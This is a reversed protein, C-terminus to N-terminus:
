LQTLSDVDSLDFVKVTGDKLHLNLYHTQKQAYSALFCLAAVTM